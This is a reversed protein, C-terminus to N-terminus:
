NERVHINVTDVKLLQLVKQMQTTATEEGTSKEKKEMHGTVKLIERAASLRTGIPQSKQVGDRLADTAGEVLSHLDEEQMFKAEALCKKVSPKALRTTITQECVELEQAIQRRSLGQMYLTLTQFDKPELGLFPNEDLEEDSFQVRLQKGSFAGNATLRKDGPSFKYKSGNSYHKIGYADTYSGDEHIEGPISQVARTSRTKIADLTLAKSEVEAFMPDLNLIDELSKGEM